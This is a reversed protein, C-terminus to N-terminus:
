FDLNYFAALGLMFFSHGYTVGTQQGGPQDFNGLGLTVKPLLRLAQGVPLWLGAGLSFDASSYDGSSATMTPNTLLSPDVYGSYSLWRSGLGIQAYFSTKDPNGVIGLTAEVLTANASSGSQTGAGFSAHEITLGVSWHRAFRYAGDFAIALGTGALRSTALSEGSGIPLVGVVGEVGLHGGILLGSRSPRSTAAAKDAEEIPPPPPPTGGAAQTTTAQPPVNSLASAAPPPAVSDATRRLSFLLSRTERERLVVSQDASEYGAAVAAVRHPGPDLPISEGILASSVDQGDLQLHISPPNAPQVQVVLRPVRPEVQALEVKAQDIAAQFAQPSGGPLPTRMVSRFTETSEVLRGLAAQCEAIRLQNTPAGFVQQAREFKDLAEAFRSARQLEDGQRFLDRAAARQADNVQARASPAWAAVAVPFALLSAFTRM